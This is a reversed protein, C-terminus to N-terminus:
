KIKKRTKFDPKFYNLSAEYVTIIFVKNLRESFAVVAHIPRGEIIKLFLASPFPEDDYYTEIIEGEGLVHEIEKISINRELMRKSAHSSFEITDVKLANIINQHFM